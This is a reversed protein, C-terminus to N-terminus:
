YKGLMSGVYSRDSRRELLDPFLDDIMLLPSVETPLDITAGAHLLEIVMDVRNSKAAWM